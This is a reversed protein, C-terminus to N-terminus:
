RWCSQIQSTLGLLASAARLNEIVMDATSTRVNLFNRAESSHLCLMGENFVVQRLSYMNLHLIYGLSLEHILTGIVKIQKPNAKSM